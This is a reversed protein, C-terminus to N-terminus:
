EGALYTDSLTAILIRLKTEISSGCHFKQM